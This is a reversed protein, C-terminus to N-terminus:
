TQITTKANTARYTGASPRSHTPHDLWVPVPPQRGSTSCLGRATWQTWLQVAAEREDAADRLASRGHRHHDQPQAPEARRQLPLAELLRRVLGLEGCGNGDASPYPRERHEPQQLAETTQLWEPSTLRNFFEMAGTSTARREIRSRRQHLDCLFGLHNAMAYPRVPLAPRRTEPTRLDGSRASRQLFRHKM